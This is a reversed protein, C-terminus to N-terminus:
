RFMVREMRDGNRHFGFREYFKHATQTFLVFFTDKIEGDNLISEVLFTGYKRNQYEPLIFLDSIYSFTACDTIVRSFGIFRGEDILSFCLSNEISKEIKRPERNRAWYSEKTLYNVVAARDIRDKNKTIEM